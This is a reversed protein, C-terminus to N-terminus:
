RSRCFRSLVAAIRNFTTLGEACRLFFRQDRRLFPPGRARACESATVLIPVVGVILREFAAFIVQALKATLCRPTWAQRFAHKRFIKGLNFHSRFDPAIKRKWAAFVSIMVDTHDPFKAIWM